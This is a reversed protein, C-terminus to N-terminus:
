LGMNTISVSFEFADNPAGTTSAATTVRLSTTSIKEYNIVTLGLFGWASLDVKQDDIPIAGSWNFDYVGTGVVHSMSIFGLNSKFGSTAAGDVVASFTPIVAFLNRPFAPLIDIFGNSFLKLTSGFNGIAVSDSTDVAAIGVDGDDANNRGVLQKSNNLRVTNDFIWAGSITQATAKRPYLVDLSELYQSATVTDANGSPVISAAVLMAQQFGYIDNLLASAFPTGDGATGTTDDKASGYTYSADPDTIRGVNVGLTSPNTAM